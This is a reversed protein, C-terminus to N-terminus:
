TLTLLVYSGTVQDKKDTLFVHTYVGDIGEQPNRAVIAFLHKKPEATSYLIRKLAHAMIVDQLLLYLIVYSRVYVFRAAM